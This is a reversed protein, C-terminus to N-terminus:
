FKPGESSILACRSQVFLGSFGACFGQFDQVFAPREERLYAARSGRKERKERKERKPGGDGGKDTSNSSQLEQKTAYFPIELTEPHQPNELSWPSRLPNGPRPDESTPEKRPNGPRINIDDEISRYGLPTFQRSFRTKISERSKPSLHTLMYQMKSARERVQFSLIPSFISRFDHFLHIDKSPVFPPGLKYM